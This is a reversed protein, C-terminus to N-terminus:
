FNWHQPMLPKISYCKFSKKSKGSLSAIFSLAKPELQRFNAATEAITAIGYIKSILIWDQLLGYELVQHIIQSKNINFNLKEKDVDWFLHPSFDLIKYSQSM